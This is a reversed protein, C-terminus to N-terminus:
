KKHKHKKGKHAPKEGDPLKWAGSKDFAVAGPSEEPEEPDTQKPPTGKGVQKKAAGTVEFVEAQQGRVYLTGSPSYAPSLGEIETKTVQPLAYVLVVGGGDFALAGSDPRWAVIPLVVNDWLLWHQKPGHLLWLVAHCLDGCGIEATAVQWAGDPSRASGSIGADEYSTVVNAAPVRGPKGDLMIERTPENPDGVDPDGLKVQTGDAIEARKGDAFVVTLVGGAPNTLLTGFGNKIAPLPEVPPAADIAADAEAADAPVVATVAAGAQSGSSGGGSGPAGSGTDKNGCATAVLGVVIWWSPRWM